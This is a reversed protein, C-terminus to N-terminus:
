ALDDAYWPCSVNIQWWKGATRGIVQVSPTRYTVGADTVGRFATKIQDALVLADQEGTEWPCFINALAIGTTRYRNQTGVDVQIDEGPLVSFQVWMGSEPLKHKTNPYVTFVSQPTAVQTEFRNRIANFLQEFTM